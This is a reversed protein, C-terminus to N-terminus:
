PCDGISGSPAAGNSADRWHDGCSNSYDFEYSIFETAALDTNFVAALYDDWSDGTPQAAPNYDFLSGVVKVTWVGSFPGTQAAEYVDAGCPGNQAHFAGVITTYTGIDYRTVFYGSADAGTVVFHRDADTTAWVEQSSPTDFCSSDNRDTYSFSHTLPNPGADGKDGKDGKQGQAGAAGAAGSDGKAGTAGTDGKAGTAGTAGTAGVPGQPGAAGQAGTAGPAGRQGKLATKASPSIDIMRITGNKIQESTVLATTVATAGGAVVLATILATIISKKV